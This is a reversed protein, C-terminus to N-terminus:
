RRAETRDPTVFLDIGELRGDTVSAESIYGADATVRQPKSGMLAKVQELMPILRKKDNAEQTM